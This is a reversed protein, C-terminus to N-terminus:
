RAFVLPHFWLRRGALLSLPRRILAPAAVNVTYMLIVSVLLIPVVTNFESNFGVMDVVLLPEYCPLATAVGRFTKVREILESKCPIGLFRFQM